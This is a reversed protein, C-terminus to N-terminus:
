RTGATNKNNDSQSSTASHEQEDVQPSPENLDTEIIHPETIDTETIDAETIDAVTPDIDNEANEDSPSLNESETGEVLAEKEAEFRKQAELEIQHKMDCTIIDGLAEFTTYDDDYEDLGDRINFVPAHFMKKLALNRLKDSVGPSMFPTFDSDEDMTDIDPMDADTLVLENEVEATLQDEPELSELEDGPSQQDQELLEDEQDSIEKSQLKRRSWRSLLGENETTM